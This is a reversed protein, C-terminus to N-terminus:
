SASRRNLPERSKDWRGRPYKLVSRRVREGVTRREATRRQGFIERIGNQSEIERSIPSSSREAKRISMSALIISARSYRQRIFKNHHSKRGDLSQCRIYIDWRRPTNGQPLLTLFEMRFYFDRETCSKPSVATHSRWDFLLRSACFCKSWAFCANKNVQCEMEQFDMAFMWCIANVTSERERQNRIASVHIIFRTPALPGPRQQWTLSRSLHVGLKDSCKM